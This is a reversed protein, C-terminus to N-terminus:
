TVNRLDFLYSAHLGPSTRLSDSEGHSLVRSEPPPPLINGVPQSVQLLQEM